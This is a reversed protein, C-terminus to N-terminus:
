YGMNVNERRNNENIADNTEYVINTRRKEKKSYFFALIGCLFVVCLLALNTIVLIDHADLGAFGSGGAQGEVLYMAATGSTYEADVGGPGGVLLAAGDGSLAVASGFYGGARMGPLRAGHQGWVNDARHYVTVAGALSRGDVAVEPAGVAVIDGLMNLSVAYGFYEKEATVGLLRGSLQWDYVDASVVKWRYVDVYGRKAAGGTYSAAASLSVGPAGVAVTDGLGDIAVSTGFVDDVNRGRLTSGRQTWETTWDMVRAGGTAVGAATKLAPSGIVMRDGAQNIAVASGFKHGIGAGRLTSGLILWIGGTYEYPLVQGANVGGTDALPSGGVVRTGDHNLSVSSGFRDYPQDGHLVNGEVEWASTDTEKDYAYMYVRVSGSETGSSASWPSGVAVRSGDGSLSVSYGFRESAVEGHITQGLQKWSMGSKEYISVSGSNTLVSDDNKAGIAVRTGDQSISIAGGFFDGYEGGSLIGRSQTWVVESEFSM